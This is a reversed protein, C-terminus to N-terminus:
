AEFAHRIWEVQWPAADPTGSGQQGGAATLALVDFRVSRRALDPRAQLLQQAALVIRRQKRRIVSAAAGGFAASRRSRVEVVVLVEGHLAVLDLEGRRRHFNRLLM